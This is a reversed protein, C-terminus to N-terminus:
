SQSFTVSVIPPRTDKVNEIGNYLNYCGKGLYYAASLGILGALVYKGNTPLKDAVMSAGYSCISGYIIGNFITSIPREIYEKPNNENWIIGATLASYKVIESTNDKEM